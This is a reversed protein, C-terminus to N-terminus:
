PSADGGGAQTAAAGRMLTNVVRAMNPHQDIMKSLAKQAATDGMVARQVTKTALANAGLTIAAAPLGGHAFSSYGGAAYVALKGASSAGSVKPGLVENATTGLHLLPSPDESSRALQAPTFRGKNAKAAEIAGNLSKFSKFPEALHQYTDLDAMNQPVGGQQLETDIHNDFFETAHTLAKKEPGRMSSQLANAADKAHLLNEGDITSQGSGFRDMQEVIADQVKTLTTDDVNPMKSKVLKEVESRIDAEKPVNFAYSSVTSKYQQDFADKLARRAELGESGAGAKIITGTPDAERMAVERFVNEAKGAQSKLQSEVGPILPLGEKYLAKTLRTPLDGAQDAAQSVPVFIDQGHQGALHELDQTSQSKKVLGRGLRGLSQTLGGVALSAGAGESAAEGQKDVDAVAASDVAGELGYKAFTSSLVKGVYPIAKSAKSLLGVGEGVPLTPLTEGVGYSFPNNRELGKDAEDQGRVAEDSFWGGKIGRQNGTSVDELAPDSPLIKNLGGVVLNGAGRVFRTAGHGMAKMSNGPRQKFSLSPIDFYTETASDEPDAPTPAKTAAEAKPAATPTQSSLYEALRKADAVNGAADAKRLADYVPALDAM